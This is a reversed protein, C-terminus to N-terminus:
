AALSNGDVSIAAEAPIDALFPALLREAVSLAKLEGPIRLELWDPRASIIEVNSEAPAAFAFNVNAGPEIDSFPEALLNLM